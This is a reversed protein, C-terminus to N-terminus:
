NINYYTNACCKLENFERAQVIDRLEILKKKSSSNVYKQLATKLRKTSWQFGLKEFGLHALVLKLDVFQLKGIQQLM